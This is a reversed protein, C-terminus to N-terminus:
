VSIAVNGVKHGSEVYRHAEAIEELQFCKDIVPTFLGKETIDKLFILDEKKWYFNSSAVIVKKNKFLFTYLSALIHSLNFDTLLYKGNPKLLRICEKMSTKGVTDFIIDYNKHAKTFDDKSYDIVHDAGISKVLEMNRTSCIGTVSAGFYKALQIAATGVSGSAGYILVHDGKKIEAKKKLYTLASLPGNVITASQEFSLNKPKFYMLATEPVCKYEAYTGFSLGSYGFVEDGPKYDKVKHGVAEITGSFEMGLVTKKPKRFGFMLGVPLKLLPPHDFSRMKPDEATVSTAHIKVLVENKKPVPKEIETIQLVEPDGYRKFVAAKM